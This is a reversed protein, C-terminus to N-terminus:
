ARISLTVDGHPEQLALSTTKGARVFSLSGGEM